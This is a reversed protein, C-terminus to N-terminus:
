CSLLRPTCGRYCWQLVIAADISETTRAGSRPSLRRISSITVAGFLRPHRRTAVLGAGVRSGGSVSYIAVRSLVAGEEERRAIVLGKGWNLTPVTVSISYAKKRKQKRSRNELWIPSAYSTARQDSPHADMKTHLLGNQATVHKKQQQATVAACGTCSGMMVKLRISKYTYRQKRTNEVLDSNWLRYNDM